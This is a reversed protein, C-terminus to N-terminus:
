EAPAPQAGATREAIKTKIQKALQPDKRVKAQFAQYDKVSYGHAKLVEDALQQMGGMPGGGQRGPTGPATGAREQRKATIEATIAVYDDETMKTGCGALLPMVLLSVLLLCLLSIRM